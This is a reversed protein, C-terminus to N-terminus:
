GSASPLQSFAFAVQTERQRNILAQEPTPQQKAVNLRSVDVTPDQMRDMKRNRYDRGDAAHDDSGLAESRRAHHRQIRSAIALCALFGAQVSTKWTPAFAAIWTRCFAAVSIGAHERSLQEFESHLDSV